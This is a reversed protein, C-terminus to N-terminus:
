HGKIINSILCSVLLYNSSHLMYLSILILHITSNKKIIEFIVLLLVEVNEKTKYDSYMKM